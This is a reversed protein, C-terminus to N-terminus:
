KGLLWDFEELSRFVSARRVALAMCDLCLNSVMAGPAEATTVAGAVGGYVWCRCAWRAGFATEGGVTTEMTAAATAAAVM